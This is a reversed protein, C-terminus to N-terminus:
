PVGRESEGSKKQLNIRIIIRNNISRASAQKEGREHEEVIPKRAGYGAVSLIESNVGRSVFYDYLKMVQTSSVNTAQAVENGLYSEINVFPAPTIKKLELALKSLLSNADKNLDRLNASFIKETPIILTVHRDREKLSDYVKAFRLQEQVNQRIRGVQKQMENNNRLDNADVAAMLHMIAALIQENKTEKSEAKAILENASVGGISGAAEGRMRVNATDSSSSQSQQTSPPAEEKTKMSQKLQEYKQPSVTSISLLLVFFMLVLTIMDAYSYIWSGDGDHGGGGAGHSGHGSDVHIPRSPKKKGYVLSVHAGADAPHKNKKLQLTSMGGAM